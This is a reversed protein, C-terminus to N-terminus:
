PPVTGQNAYKWEVTSQEAPGFAVMASTNYPSPCDLYGVGKPDGSLESPSYRPPPTMSGLLGEASKPRDDSLQRDYSPVSRRLLPLKPIRSTVAAPLMGYIM